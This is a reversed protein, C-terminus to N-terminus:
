LVIQKINCCKLYSKQAWFSSRVLPGKLVEKFRMKEATRGLCDFEEPTYYKKVPWHEPSPSLYQGLYVIDVGCNKLDKLTDEVDKIEEGLGLIMSSKTFIGNKRLCLKDLRALVNLSEKYSSRPRVRSYLKEPIEINHGIVEAGSHVIADLLAENADLDPVLLEVLTDPNRKKIALVTNVFANTGKDTLDDRTVSTIVVYKLGLQKTVNAIREPEDPDPADPQGYSVNCFRCGRTCTGGLIMFTVHGAAWCTHKNPCQAEVCVSKVCSKELLNKVKIFDGGLSITSRIWGPRNITKSPSIKKNM